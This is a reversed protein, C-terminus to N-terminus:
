GRLGTYIGKKVAKKVLGDGKLGKRKVKRQPKVYRM